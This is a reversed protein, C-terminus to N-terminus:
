EVDHKREYLSHDLICQLDCLSLNILVIFSMHSIKYLFFYCSSVAYKVM